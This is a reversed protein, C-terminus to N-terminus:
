KVAGFSGWRKRERVGDKRVEKELSLGRGRLCKRHLKKTGSTLRKVGSSKVFWTEM